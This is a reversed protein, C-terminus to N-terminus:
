NQVHQLKVRDTHAIGSLVSNCYDLRNSALANALLKAGNLDLYRRIRRLDRIRYFCARCIASILSRINFKNDFIVGLSRASKVPYTKVAFHEIPFM